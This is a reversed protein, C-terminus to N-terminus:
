PQVTVRASLASATAYYGSYAPAAIAVTGGGPRRVCKLKGYYKTDLVARQTTHRPIQTGTTQAGQPLTTKLSTTRSVQDLGDAARNASKVQERERSRSRSSRRCQSHDVQHDVVERNEDHGKEAREDAGPHLM